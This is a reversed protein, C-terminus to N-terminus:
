LALRRELSKLSRSADSANANLLSGTSVPDPSFYASEKQSNTSDKALIASFNAKPGIPIVSTYIIYM